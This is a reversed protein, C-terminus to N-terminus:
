YPIRNEGSYQMGHLDYHYQGSENSAIRGTHNALGAAITEEPSSVLAPCYLVSM